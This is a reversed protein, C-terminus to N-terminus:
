GVAFRMNRRIVHARNVNLDPHWLLGKVPVDFFRNRFFQKYRLGRLRNDVAGKGSSGGVLDLQKTRLGGFGEKLSRRFITRLVRIVNATRPPKELRM